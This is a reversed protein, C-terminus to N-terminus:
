SVASSRQSATYILGAVTQSLTRLDFPKALFHIPGEVGARDYLTFAEASGSVFLIPLGLHAQKLHRALEIGSMFPMEVDTIVLGIKARHRKWLGMAERGDHAALIQYGDNRLCMSILGLISEDDDVVLIVPGAKSM